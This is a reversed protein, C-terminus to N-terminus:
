CGVEELTVFPVWGISRLGWVSNKRAIIIAASAASGVVCLWCTRDAVTRFKFVHCRRLWAVMGEAIFADCVPYVLFMFDGTWVTTFSQNYKAMRERLRSCVCSLIDCLSPWNMHMCYEVFNSELPPPFFEAVLQISGGKPHVGIGGPSQQFVARATPFEGRLLLLHDWQARCEYCVVLQVRQSSAKMGKMGLTSFSSSSCSGPSTSSM